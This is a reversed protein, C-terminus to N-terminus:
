KSLTDTDRQNPNGLKLIAILLRSLFDRRRVVQGCAELFSPKRLRNWRSGGLKKSLYGAILWLKPFTFFGRKKRLKEADTSSCGFLAPAHDIFSQNTQNEAEEAPIAFTLNNSHVRYKILCQDLNAMRYRAALRLWLDYDEHRVDRYNGVDLVAARRFLVTPQWVVWSYLLRHVIDDHEMPLQCFQGQEQGDQDIKIVQSGVVAIEPHGLLFEVQTQLRGLFNIDDGDICACWETEAMRVLEARSSGVSMSRGLIIKGPIRHPIWRQLEEVTGDTSGNDWVLIQHNIYTQSQISELTAPLYPMANKVPMLWTVM